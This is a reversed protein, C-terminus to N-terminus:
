PDARTAQTSRPMTQLFDEYGEGNAVIQRSRHKASIIGATVTQDLGFPSGIAVVWDGVRLADSDGIAAPTLGSADVKVVALDTQPDTGVVKGEIERGDSLTVSLEDAGEVVHNNTLIYGDARVIVGSGLGSGGPTQFSEDGFAEPFLQRFEPPINQRSPGRRRVQKPKITTSISVVSPQISEAVQRFATSLDTAAELKEPAVVAREQAIAAGHYGFKPSSLIFGTVASAAVLMAAGVTAPAFGRKTSM